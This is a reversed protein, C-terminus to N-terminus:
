QGLARQQRQQAPRNPPRKRAPRASQKAIEIEGFNFADPRKVFEAKVSPNKEEAKQGTSFSATSFLILIALTAIIASAIRM